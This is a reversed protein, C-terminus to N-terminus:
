RSGRAASNEYGEDMQIFIEPLGGHGDEGLASGDRLSKAFRACRVSPCYSVDVGSPHSAIVKESANDYRTVKNRSLAHVFTSARTRITPHETYVNAGNASM